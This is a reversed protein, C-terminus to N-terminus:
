IHAYSCFPRSSLFMGIAYPITILKSHPYFFFHYTIEIRPVGVILFNLMERFKRGSILLYTPTIFYM